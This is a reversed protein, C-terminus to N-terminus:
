FGLNTGWWTNNDYNRTRYQEGPTDDIEEHADENNNEDDIFDDDYEEERGDPNGLMFGNDDVVATFNM